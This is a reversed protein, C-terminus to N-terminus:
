DTLFPNRIALGDVIQGHQLDETYLVNCRARSASALILSDYINFQFREALNLALEHTELDVPKVRCVARVAALVDRVEAITMALKRTAVSVFENLVQVSIVGGHAILEEAKESKAPEESLLYLLLNTDFFSNVAKM